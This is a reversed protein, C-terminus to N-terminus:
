YAPGSGDYVVFQQEDPYGMGGQNFGGTFGAGPNGGGADMGQVPYGSQFSGQVQVPYGAPQVNQIPAPAFNQALPNAGQSYGPIYYGAPAQGGVASVQAPAQQPMIVTPAAPAPTV